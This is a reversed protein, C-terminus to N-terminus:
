RPAYIIGRRAYIEKKTKMGAPAKKVTIGALITLEAVHLIGYHDGVFVIVYDQNEAAMKRRLRRIGFEFSRYSEEEVREEEDKWDRYALTLAFTLMTLIAHATMAEKTKKPSKELHWGQKNERFLLNEIISRNDYLDFTQFPDKVNANTIYVVGKDLGYKVSNWEIVVVANLKEPLFNGRNKHKLEESSCYSDLTQLSTIGVVTTVVEEQKKSGSKKKVSRTKKIGNGALAMQRADKYIDMNKKAPVVFVIGMQNIKYLDQGDLFGRDFIFKRITAYGKINEQAQKLLELAYTVEHDNIKVVKVALPIQTKLDM